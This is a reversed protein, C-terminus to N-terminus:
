RNTRAGRLSARHGVTGKRDDGNPLQGRRAAEVFLEPKVCVWWNGGSPSGSKTVIARPVELMPM